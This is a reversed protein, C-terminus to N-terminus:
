RIVISSVTITGPAVYLGAEGLSTRIQGRSTVSAIGPAVGTFAGFGSDDTARAGPSVIGGRLYLATGQAPPLLELSAGSVPKGLCDQALILLMGKAPDASAGAAGLLPPLVSQPVVPLAMDLPGYLPPNFVYMTPQIPTCDVSEGCASTLRLYGDFGAGYAGLTPVDFEFVGGQDTQEAILPAACAVDKRDCVQMRVNPVLHSCSPSAWNCLSLRVHVFPGSPSPNDKCLSETALQPDDPLELLQACGGLTTVLAIYLPTTNM